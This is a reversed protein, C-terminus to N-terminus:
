IMNCFWFMNGKLLLLICNGNWSFQVASSHSLGNLLKRHSLTLSPQENWFFPNQFTALKDKLHSYKFYTIMVHINLLRIYCVLLINPLICSQTGNSHILSIFNQNLFSSVYFTILFNSPWNNKINDRSWIMPHEFHHHGGM